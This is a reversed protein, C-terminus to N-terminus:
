FKKISKLIEEEPEVLVSVFNTKYKKQDTLKKLTEITM